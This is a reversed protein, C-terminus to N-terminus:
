RRGRSPGHGVKANLGQMRGRLSARFRSLQMRQCRERFSDRLRQRCMMVREEERPDKEETRSSSHGM